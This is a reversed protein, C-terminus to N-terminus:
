LSRHGITGLSLSRRTVDLEEQQPSLHRSIRDRQVHCLERTLTEIIWPPVCLAVSAHAIPIFRITSGLYSLSEPLLPDISLRSTLRDRKRHSLLLRLM